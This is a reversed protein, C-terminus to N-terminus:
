RMSALIAATCLRSHRIVPGCVPGSLDQVGPGTALSANYLGSLVQGASGGRQQATLEDMAPYLSTQMM